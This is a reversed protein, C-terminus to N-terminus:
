REREKMEKMEKFRSKALDLDKKPTKQTKKEFAHLVVINKASELVYMTRFAGDKNRIRIEKVGPGISKMPKWDEPPLGVQVSELQYGIERRTEKTFDRIVSLSDGMFEITKM